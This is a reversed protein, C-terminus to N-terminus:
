GKIVRRNDRFLTILTPLLLSLLIISGGLFINETIKENNIMLGFISAFVPELSFILATKAATTFRQYKFQIMFVLTTAFIACFLIGIVVDPHLLNHLDKSWSFIMAPPITFLMIYFTLLKTDHLQTSMRQIYTIQLAFALACLLTWLEGANIEHINADTLIYLGILCIVSCVIDLPRLDGVKFLPALFPILIVSIGTIFASRSSSITKLGISQTIYAVANLTGIIICNLVLKKPTNKLSKIVWPLLILTALLFRVSVFLNPDIQAVANRVLPFTIGWIATALILFLNAKTTQQM